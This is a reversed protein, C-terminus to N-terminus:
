PEKLTGPEVGMVKVNTTREEVSRETSKTPKPFLLLGVVVAILFFILVGAIVRKKLM